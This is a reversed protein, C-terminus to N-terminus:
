WVEQFDLKFDALVPAAGNEMYERMKGQLDALSDGPSRPGIVFDPCLPIFGRRQEPTLANLREDSVWAADPSRVAGNPKGCERNALSEGINIV